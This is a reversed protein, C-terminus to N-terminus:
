NRVFTHKSIGCRDTFANDFMGDPNLQQFLSLWTPYREYMSGILKDGGSLFNLLGWHPRGGFGYM